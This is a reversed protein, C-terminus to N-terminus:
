LTDFGYFKTQSSDTSFRHKPTHNRGKGRMKQSRRVTRRQAVSRGDSVTPCPNIRYGSPGQRGDSRRVTRRLEVSRGDRTAPPHGISKQARDKSDTTKSPGDSTRRRVTRRTSAASEQTNQARHKDDTANSPGDAAKSPGDAAGRRVTRRTGLSHGANHKSETTTTRRARHVMRRKNVSRGDHLALVHTGEGLTKERPRKRLPKRM